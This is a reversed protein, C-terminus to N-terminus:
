SSLRCFLHIIQKVCYFNLRNISAIKPPMSFVVFVVWRVDDKRRDELLDHILCGIFFILLLCKGCNAEIYARVAQFRPQTHFIVTFTNRDWQWGRSPAMTKHVNFYIQSTNLNPIFSLLFHMVIENGVEGQFWQKTPMSTFKPLTSTPYSLYCFICWSRM